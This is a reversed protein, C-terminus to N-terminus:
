RALQRDRLSPDAFYLLTSESTLGIIADSLGFIEGFTSLIAVVEDAIAGIWVMSCIFGCCCRILRWPQSLGDTAFKLVAVAVLAGAL